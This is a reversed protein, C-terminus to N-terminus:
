AAAIWTFVGALGAGAASVTTLAIVMWIPVPLLALAVASASAYLAFQAFEITDKTAKLRRLAIEHSGRSKGFVDTVARTGRQVDLWKSVYKLTKDTQETIIRETIDRGVRDSMRGVAYDGIQLLLLWVILVIRINERM